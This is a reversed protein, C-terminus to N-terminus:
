FMCVNAETDRTNKVLKVEASKKEERRRPYGLNARKSVAGRYGLVKEM